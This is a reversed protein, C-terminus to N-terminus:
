LAKRQKEAISDSESAVKCSSLMDTLEFASIYYGRDLERKIDLRIAPCEKIASKIDDVSAHISYGYFFALSVCIVSGFFVYISYHM